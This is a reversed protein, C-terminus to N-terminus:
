YSQVYCVEKFLNEIKSLMENEKMGEYAILGNQIIEFDEILHVYRIHDPLSFRLVNRGNKHHFTIIVEKQNEYVSVYDFSMIIDDPIEIFVGDRFQTVNGNYPADVIGLRRIKRCSILRTNANVIKQYIM